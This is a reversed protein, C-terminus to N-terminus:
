RRERACLKLNHRTARAIPLYADFDAPPLSSRLEEETRAADKALPELTKRCDSLRGLHYQTIALDNRIWDSEQGLTKSCRSLLPALVAVAKAYSKSAYLQKFRARTASLEKGTCGPGPRLYEGAFSARMGCFYRCADLDVGSVDIGDANPRFTVVCSRNPEDIDLIARGSQVDGELSCTHANAGTAEISFHTARHESNSIRLVGWGNRTIYEGPALVDTEARVCRPLAGFVAIAVVLTQLIHRFNLM